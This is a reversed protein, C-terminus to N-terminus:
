LDFEELLKKLHVSWDGKRPKYERKLTEYQELM